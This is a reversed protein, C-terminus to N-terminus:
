SDADIREKIFTAVEAPVEHKNLNRTIIDSVKFEGVEVDYRDEETDKPTLRQVKFGLCDTLTDVEVGEEALVRIYKNKFSEHDAKEFEEATMTVYMKGEPDEAHTMPQMSGTCVVKIGDVMYDGAIHWHGSYIEKAGMAALEKAPCLHETHNEDFAVLDWHGVAVDFEEDRVDDLQELATRGWEWPFFAIGDEVFPKTIITLNPLKKHLLALMDFAGYDNKQASRDHNGAMHYFDRDPQTEAATLIIQCIRYLDVLSCIPKEFLDGVMIVNPEDGEHLRSEFDSFLLAEREGRRALPVGFEFKRTIHPDGILRFRRPESM